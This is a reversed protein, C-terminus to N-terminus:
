RSIYLDGNSSGAAQPHHVDKGNMPWLKQGVAETRTWKSCLKQSICPVVSGNVNEHTWVPGLGSKKPNGKVLKWTLSKALYGLSSRWTHCRRLLPVTKVLNRKSQSGHPSVHGGNLCVSLSSLLSPCITEPTNLYSPESCLDGLDYRALNKAKREEFTKLNEWDLYVPSCEM